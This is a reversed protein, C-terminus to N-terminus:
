IRIFISFVQAVLFDVLGIYFSVLMVLIIVVITSAIMQQRPLWTVKRLEGYAENFFQM